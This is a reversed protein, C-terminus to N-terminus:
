SAGVNMADIILYIVDSIPDIGGDILGTKRM